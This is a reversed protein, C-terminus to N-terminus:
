RSRELAVRLSRTGKRTMTSSSNRSELTPSNFKVEYGLPKIVLNRELQFEKECRVASSLRPVPRFIMVLVPRVQNCFISMLEMQLGAELEVM